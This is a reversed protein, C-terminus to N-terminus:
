LYIFDGPYGLKAAIEKWTMDKKLLDRYDSHNKDYLHRNQKVLEILKYDNPKGVYTMRERKLIGKRLFFIFISVKLTIEPEKKTFFYSANSSQVHM